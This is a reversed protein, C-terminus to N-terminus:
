SKHNDHKGIAMFKEVMFLLCGLVNIGLSIDRKEVLDLARVQEFVQKNEVKKAVKIEENQQSSNHKGEGLKARAM